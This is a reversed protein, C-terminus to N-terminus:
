NTTLYQKLQDRSEDIVAAAAGFLYSYLKDAFHTEENAHCGFRCMRVQGCKTVTNIWDDELEKRGDAVLSCRLYYYNPDKLVEQM